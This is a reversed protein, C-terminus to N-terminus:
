LYDKPNPRYEPDVFFTEWSSRVGTAEWLAALTTAVFDPGFRSQEGTIQLSAGLTSPEYISVLCDVTGGDSLSQDDLEDFVFDDDGTDDGRIRFGKCYGSSKFLELVQMTAPLSSVLTDKKGAQQDAVVDVLGLLQLRELLRRGVARAFRDRDLYDPLLDAATRWLAYATFDFYYQDTVHEEKWPARASFSRGAKDRYSQVRQQIDEAIAQEEGGKRKQVQNILAQTAICTPSCTDDLLLPPLPGKLTRPPSVVPAISLQINGEKKNGGLLDRMYFEFDLEAAGRAASAPETPLMVWASGVALGRELLQRRSPSPSQLGNCFTLVLVAIAAWVLLRMTNFFPISPSKTVMSSLWNQGDDDGSFLRNFMSRVYREDCSPFLSFPFPSIVYTVPVVRSQYIAM